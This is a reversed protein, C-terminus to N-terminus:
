EIVMRKIVGAGLLEALRAALVPRAHRLERLWAPTKARLVLVGDDRWETDAAKALAPGAAMRWAFTVKAPSTPQTDLLRRLAETASTHLAELRKMMVDGRGANM